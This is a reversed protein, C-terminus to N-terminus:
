SPLDMALLESWSPLGVVSPLEEWLRERLATVDRRFARQCPGCITNDDDVWQMAQAMNHFPGTRPTFSQNINFTLRSFVRQCVKPAGQCNMDVLREGCTHRIFELIMNIRHQYMLTYESVDHTLLQSSPRSPHEIQLKPHDGRLLQKLSYISLFYLVSPIVIRINVERALNLVHLPHVYPYTTGDVSPSALAQAVMEDHGRITYSWTETLYRIAQTRLHTIFYKSALRLIGALFYFDEVNRHRFTVGDYLAKILNSLEGPLDYMRVIPCGDVQEIPELGPAPQPIDFMTQFVESQRALVGRHVKFAVLPIHDDDEVLLIINGDEFWPDGHRSPPISSHLVDM